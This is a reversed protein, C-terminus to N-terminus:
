AQGPLTLIPFQQGTASELYSSLAATGEHSIERSFPLTKSMESPSALGEPKNLVIKM